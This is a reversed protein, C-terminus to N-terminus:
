ESGPPLVATEGHRLVALHAQPLAAETWAQRLIRPPELVPEDTLRFTGWHIPLFRGAAGLETYARVAEYPDMHAPQMFWRPAYAGIPLAVAQFPGCRAAIEPFEPFFGTDGAFFLRTDGAQIVWGCWLRDRRRELPSRRSWHQAPTAVLQLPAGDPPGNVRALEWWDLERVGPIGQDAFWATFGLPAFWHLRPGFPAHLRRVTDRDLHDYHDHSIVVADIDPLAEWALGPPVLRRPGLWQVPSARESWVPDTLVNWGDIQVLLTSHGVWTVRLEGAAAGPYAVESAALPLADAPPPPAPRDGDRLRELQWQFFASPGREPDSAQPWPNRFGGGSLHHTPATVPIRDPDPLLSGAHRAGAGREGRARSM